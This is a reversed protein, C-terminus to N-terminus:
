GKGALLVTLTDFKGSAVTVAVRIYPYAIDADEFWMEGATTAAVPTNLAYWNTGDISGQVGVTGSLSAATWKAHIAVAVTNTLPSALEYQAAASVDAVSAIQKTWANYNGM